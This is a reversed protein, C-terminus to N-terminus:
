CYQERGKNVFSRRRDWLCISIYVNEARKTIGKDCIECGVNIFGTFVDCESREETWYATIIRAESDREQAYKTIKKEESKTLHDFKLNEMNDFKM